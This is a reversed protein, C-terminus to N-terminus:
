TTRSIAHIACIRLITVQFVSESYYTVPVLRQRTLGGPPTRAWNELENETVALPNRTTSLM